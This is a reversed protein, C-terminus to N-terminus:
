RVTRELWDLVVENHVRPAMPSCHLQAGEAVTLTVMDKPSTLLDFLQKAQGPYFQEEEYNLVLVPSTIEDAIKTINQGQVIQIPTWFDTPLTGKRAADICAEGYPELRKQLLFKQEVTLEPIVFENWVQNTSEKEPTVIARLEEPFGLYPDTVGPASVVAALRQEYAAARAVLQGGMSIGFIAIKDKDVDKRDRLFDVVPTVVKEWDDRFPLKHVFLMSGQGPGEFILANWGREVAAAAGYTWLGNAQGDSGNNLILTPRAAGSDDPSFFWGPMTTEEYPIEVAESYPALTAAAIDWNARWKEYVREEDAAQTTGLVYFLAHEYYGAARLAREARTVDDGNNGAEIAQNAMEDGWALFTDTFTQYSPGAANVTNVITLVEGVETVGYAASGLAGLADYNFSSDAFLQVTPTTGGAPVATSPPVTEPAVTSSPATSAKPGASGEESTCAALAVVAGGSAAVGLM